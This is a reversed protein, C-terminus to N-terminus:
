NKFKHLNSKIVYCEISFSVLDQIRLLVFQVSVTVTAEAKRNGRADTDYDELVSRLIREEAPRNFRDMVFAPEAEAISTYDVPYSDASNLLDCPQKARTFEFSIKEM